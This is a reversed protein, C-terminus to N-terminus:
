HNLFAEFTTSTDHYSQQRPFQLGPSVVLLEWSRAENLFAKAAAGGSM